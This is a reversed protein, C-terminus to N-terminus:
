RLLRVIVHATVFIIIPLLLSICLAFITIM